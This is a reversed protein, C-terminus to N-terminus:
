SGHPRAPGKGAEVEMLATEIEDLVSGELVLHSAGIWGEVQTASRAGVITGGVEPWTLTWAIAMEALSTGLGLAIPKLRAVLEATRALQSHQFQVRQYRWDSRPLSLLRPISFHDSLLGSALPSYALTHIGHAASWPLLESGAERSLLSLSVQSAEVPRYSACRALMPVDFNSVGAWRIKGEDQLDGLTEWAAEVSDPDDTPWHIQYLDVREVGLRRL